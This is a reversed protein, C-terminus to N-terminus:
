KIHAFSAPRTSFIQHKYAGGFADDSTKDHTQCKKEITGHIWRTTNPSALIREVIVADAAKTM